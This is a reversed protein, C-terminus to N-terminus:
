KPTEHMYENFIFYTIHKDYKLALELLYKDWENDYESTDERSMSEEYKLKFEEFDEPKLITELKKLAEPTM